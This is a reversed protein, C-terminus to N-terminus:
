AEYRSSQIALVLFKFSVHNCGMSKETPVECNPCKMSNGKLWKRNEEEEQWIRAMRELNVKSGFRQEMARRRPSAEPHALYEQLLSSTSSTPCHAIGHWSRRCLDCFSFSCSPCTRLSSYPAPESGALLSAKQADTAPVPAQCVAIPCYVLTPDRELERKRKLAKWRAVEKDSVVRRVDEERVCGTDESTGQQRSEEKVCGPDACTVKDVDGERIHLSWFDTLCERCFVHSCASLRVCKSGKRESFCIACTFTTSAFTRDLASSNHAALRRLLLAPAPHPIRLSIYYTSALFIVRPNGWPVRVQYCWGAASRHRDLVRWKPDM